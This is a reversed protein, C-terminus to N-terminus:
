LIVSCSIWRSSIDPWSGMPPALCPILRRLLSASFAISDPAFDTTGSSPGKLPFRRIYALTAFDGGDNEIEIEPAFPGSTLPLFPLSHVALGSFAVQSTVKVRSRPGRSAKNKDKERTRSNRSLGFSSDESRNSPFIM